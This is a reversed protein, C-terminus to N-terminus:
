YFSGEEIEQIYKDEIWGVKCNESRILLVNAIKAKRALFTVKQGELALALEEGTEYDRMVAVDANITIEQGSKLKKKRTKSDRGTM